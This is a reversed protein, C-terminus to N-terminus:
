RGAGSPAPLNVLTLRLLMARMSGADLRFAALRGGLDARLADLETGAIGAIELVLEAQGPGYGEVSCEEAGLRQLLGSLFRELSDQPVAEAPIARVDRMPVWFTRDASPYFIQGSGRRLGLLVAAGEGTGLSERYRPSPVVLSGVPPADM